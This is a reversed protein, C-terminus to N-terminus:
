QRPVWGRVEAGSPALTGDIASRAVDFLRFNHSRAYTRLWSFAQVMDLGAREAIIGKAQEIVVRSQLAHNLQDIVTHSQTTASHQLIAITAIAAMAQAAALDAENLQGEDTRFLNLAGITDGRLRMPLADVSKFGAELAVSAFQPWPGNDITLNQNLSPQGTRYADPGPGEQSQIEFVEVLRAEESSSAMLQLTGEPAAIMVGVATVDLIEVCRDSLLTLLDVVDFDDILTDALEVLTQALLAERIM